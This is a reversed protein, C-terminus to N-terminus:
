FSSVSINDHCTLTRLALLACYKWILCQTVKLTLLAFALPLIRPGLLRPAFPAAVLNSSGHASGLWSWGQRLDITEELAHFFSWTRRWRQVIFWLISSKELDSTGKLVNEKSSWCRRLSGMRWLSIHLVPLIKWAHRKGLHRTLFKGSGPWLAIPRIYAASGQARDSVWLSIVWEFKKWRGMKQWHKTITPTSSM